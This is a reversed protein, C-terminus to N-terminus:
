TPVNRVTTTAQKPVLYEIEMGYFKVVITPSMSVQWVVEKGRHSAMDWYLFEPVDAREFTFTKASSVPPTGIATGTYGGNGNYPGDAADGAKLTAALTAANSRLKIGIMDAVKEVGWPDKFVGGIVRLMTAAANDTFVTLSEQWVKTTGGLLLTGDLLQFSSSFGGRNHPGTWRYNQSSEHNLWMENNSALGFLKYQGENTIAHGQGTGTHTIGTTISNINISAEAVTYDKTILYVRGDTGTYMLGQSIAQITHPMDTGVRTHLKDLITDTGIPDGSLLWVSRKKFICLVTSVFEGQGTTLVGFGTISDGDGSDGVQIYNTSAFDTTLINSYWAKSDDVTYTGDTPYDAVFLRNNYVAIHKGAPPASTGTVDTKTTGNATQAVPNTGNAMYVVSNWELMEYPGGNTTPATGGTIPSVTNTSSLAATGFSFIQDNGSAMDCAIVAKSQDAFNTGAMVFTANVGANAIAETAASVGPVSRLCGREKYYEFMNYCGWLSDEELNSTQTDSDVSKFAQKDKRIRDM